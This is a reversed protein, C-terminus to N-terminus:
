RYSVEPVRMAWAPATGGDAFLETTLARWVAHAEDRSCNIRQRAGVAITVRADRASVCVATGSPTRIRRYTPADPM